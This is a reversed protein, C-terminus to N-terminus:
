HEVILGRLPLKQRDPMRLASGPITMDPICGTRGDLRESDVCSGDKWANWDGSNGKGPSCSKYFRVPRSTFGVLLFTRRGGGFGPKPVAIIRPPRISESSGPM